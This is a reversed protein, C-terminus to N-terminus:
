RAEGSAANATPVSRTSSPPTAAQSRAPATAPTTQSRASATAPTAQGRGPATAPTARDTADAAHATAPIAHDAPPTAHDTARAPPRARAVLVALTAALLPLWALRAPIWGPGDPLSHLGPLGTGGARRVALAGLATVGVLVPQHCLYVRVAHRNLAAVPRWWRPRDLLRSLAPRLLLAAGVQAVALCVAFLSPPNLNSRGAGPVGVASAPYGGLLVLGAIGVAGVVLLARGTRRLSGLRGAALAVGLLYPVLWAALVALPVYATPPVGGVAPERVALDAVAVCGAAGLLLPVTGGREVVRRLPGTLAVLAVFPLLFWLPSVALTAATRLTPTPVGAVFAVPVAAGAMALLVAASRALRGLRRGSWARHGVGRATASALSRASAYGGTFFFLGLAQLLWTAPALAPMATLPSAQHLAGDPALVLGTVLWHGLVVACIAYARLGDVARDRSM